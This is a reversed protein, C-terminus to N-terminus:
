ACNEFRASRIYEMRAGEEVGVEALVFPVSFIAQM